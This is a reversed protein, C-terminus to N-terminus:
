EPDDPTQAAAVNAKVQEVVQDSLQGTQFYMSMSGMTQKAKGPTYAMSVTGKGTYAAAANVDGLSAAMFMVDWGDAKCQDLMATIEDKTFKTSRGEQGDTFVVLRIADPKGGKGFKDRKKKITTGVADLIRTGGGPQYYHGDIRPTDKIPLHDIMVEPQDNFVVLTFQCPEDLERLDNLMGNIEGVTDSVNEAMSGSMDLVLTLDLM